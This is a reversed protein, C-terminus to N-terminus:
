GKRAVLPRRTIPWAISEMKERQTPGSNLVYPTMKQSQVEGLSRSFTPRFQDIVGKTENGM